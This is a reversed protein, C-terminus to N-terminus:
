TTNAGLACDKWPAPSAHAGMQEILFTANDFGHM